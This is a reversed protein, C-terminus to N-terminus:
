LKPGTLGINLRKLLEKVYTLLEVKINYIRIHGKKDVSRRPYLPLPCVVINRIDL